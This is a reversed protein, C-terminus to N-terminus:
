VHNTLPLAVLEAESLEVKGSGALFDVASKRAAGIRELVENAASASWAGGTQSIAPGASIFNNFGASQEQQGTM